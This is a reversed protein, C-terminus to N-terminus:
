IEPEGNLSTVREAMLLDSAAANYKQIRVDKDVVFVLSPLADFM